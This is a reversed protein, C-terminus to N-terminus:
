QFGSLQKPRIRSSVFLSMIAFSGFCYFGDLLNSQNTSIIDINRTIEELQQLQENILGNFGIYSMFIAVVMVDAMSWKGSKIVLFHILKKKQLKPRYVYFITLLLKAIPFIVSFLLVLFGILLLEAKGQAFMLEVVELISKSRYYLVQDVFSVPEGLLTFSLEQIRADIEIMPLLLGAILPSLAALVFLLIDTPEPNKTILLLLLIAAFSGYMGWKLPQGLGRKIALQISSSKLAAAKTAADYNDLIEDYLSYDTQAFTSDAYENVKDQLFRRIAERNEPEDLFNIIQETFTPIDKKLHNFTGTIEATASKLIGRFTRSNEEYYRNEFEDITEILFGEIKKRLEERNGEELNFSEVKQAIVDAAIKKWEDVNFLGYKVKLLEVRDNKISAMEKQIQVSRWVSFAGLFILAALVSRRIFNLDM